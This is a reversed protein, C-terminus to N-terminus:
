FSNQRGHPSKVKADDTNNKTGAPSIESFRRMLQKKKKAPKSSPRKSSLTPIMYWGISTCLIAASRGFFALFLLILIIFVPM